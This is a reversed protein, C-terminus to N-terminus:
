GKNKIGNKNTQGIYNKSSITWKIGSVYIPRTIQCKSQKILNQIAVKYKSRDPFNQIDDILNCSFSNRTSTVDKPVKDYCQVFFSSKMLSKKLLYSWSRLFSRRDCTTFFDKIFLKLKQATYNKLGSIM